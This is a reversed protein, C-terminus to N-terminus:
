PKSLLVRYDSGQLPLRRYDVEYVWSANWFLPLRGTAAQPISLRHRGEADLWEVLDAAGGQGRTVRGRLGDPLVAETGIVQIEFNDRKIFAPPLQGFTHMKPVQGLGFQDSRLSGFLELSVMHAILLTRRADQSLPPRRADVWAEIASQRLAFASQPQALEPYLRHAEQDFRRRDEPTATFWDNANRLHPDHYHSFFRRTEMVRNYVAALPAGQRIVRGDASRVAGASEGPLRGLSEREEQAPLANQQGRDFARQRAAERDNAARDFPNGAPAPAATPAAPAAQRQKVAQEAKKRAQERAEAAKQFPNVTQGAAAACTFILLM